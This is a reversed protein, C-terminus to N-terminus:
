NSYNIKWCGPSSHSLPAFFMVICRQVCRTSLHEVSKTSHFCCHPRSLPPLPTLTLAELSIHDNTWPSIFPVCLSPDDRKRGRGKSREVKWMGQSKTIIKFTHNKRLIMLFYKLIIYFQQKYWRLSCLKVITHM